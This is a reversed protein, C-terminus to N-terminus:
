PVCTVAMAAVYSLRSETRFVLWDSASHQSSSENFVPQERNCLSQERASCHSSGREPLIHMMLFIANMLINMRNRMSFTYWRMSLSYERSSVITTVVFTVDEASSIADVTQEIFM